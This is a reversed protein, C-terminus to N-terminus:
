PRQFGYNRNGVVSYPKLPNYGRPSFGGPSGLQGGFPTSNFLDTQGNYSGYNPAQFPQHASPMQQMGNPFMAPLSPNPATNGMSQNGYGGPQQFGAGFQGNGQGSQSLGNPLMSQTDSVGGYTQGNYTQGVQYPYNTPSGVGPRQQLLFPRGNNNPM